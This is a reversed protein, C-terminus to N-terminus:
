TRAAYLVLPNGAPDRLVARIEHPGEEPGRILRAGAATLRHVMAAVDDVKFSVAPAGVVREQPGAIALTTGEGDLAAFREGDQFKVKLGLIDRYFRVAEDVDDAPYLVHGIRTV